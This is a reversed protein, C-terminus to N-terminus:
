ETPSKRTATDVVQWLQLWEEISLTEARRSTDIGATNMWSRVEENKYHLGHTLSNHLQKRRESFGAQVVKFFRTREDPTLPVQPKVDIRLIASDVKPAPFFSQAPVRAIIQPQGYFQISVGLLSLDGPGAVIRQAVELQVMTVLLQPANEHELFHRFTPATIYYPLNAVLKYPRTGFVELPNLYLLNRAMLEVNPFKRTTKELLTLMDRELEVAVVRKAQAALERTLVGTGSGVELVEDTSIIEAADVIKTLASRDILFNQGFAKNPRMNHAYLLSRLERPDTLDIQDYLDFAPTVTTEESSDTM